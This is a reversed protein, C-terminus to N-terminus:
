MVMEWLMVMVRTIGNSMANGNGMENGNGM